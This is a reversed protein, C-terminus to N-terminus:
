NLILLGQGLLKCFGWIKCVSPSPSSSCSPCTTVWLQCMAQKRKKEKLLFLYWYDGSAVQRAKTYKILFSKPSPSNTLLEALKPSSLLTFMYSCSGFFSGINWDKGPGEGNRSCCPRVKCHLGCFDSSPPFFHMSLLAPRSWNRFALSRM